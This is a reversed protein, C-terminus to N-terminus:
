IFSELYYLSCHVLVICSQSHHLIYTEGTDAPQEISCRTNAEIRWFWVADKHVADTQEASQVATSDDTQTLQQTTVDVAVDNALDDAAGYKAYLKAFMADTRGAYRQLITDIEGLKEPNHQTYFALLKARVAATNDAAAAVTEAPLSDATAGATTSSTDDNTPAATSVSAATTEITATAALTSVHLAAM